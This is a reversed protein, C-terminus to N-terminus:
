KSQNHGRKIIRLQKHLQKDEVELKEIKVEIVDLRAEMSYYFGALLLAASVIMFLTKLDINFKM